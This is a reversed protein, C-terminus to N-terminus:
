PLATVWEGEKVGWNDGGHLLTVVGNLAIEQALGPPCLHEHYPRIAISFALINARFYCSHALLGLCVYCYPPRSEAGDNSLSDIEEKAQSSM